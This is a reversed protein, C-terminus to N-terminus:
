KSENIEGGFGYANGSTRKNFYPKVMDIDLELTKGKRRNERIVKDIIRDATEVSLSRLKDVVENSVTLESIAYIWKKKELIDNIISPKEETQVPALEILEVFNKLKKANEKDCVCIPLVSSLDLTIAPHHLRFKRRKDSRLVTKTLEIAADSVEGSFVLIYANNKRENLGRIFVNNKTPEFDYERLEGVEIRDINTSKLAECVASIYTELVYESDSCLCIPRFMDLARIDSGYLGQVVSKRENERNIPLKEIAAENVAIDAFKLRLPLDCTESLMEKNESFLIKEKDKIGIAESYILRAYMPDYVDQKLKNVSVAQKILLVEESFEEDASAGYKDEAIFTMFEYPTDKVASNLMKFIEAKNTESYKLMVLTAPIDGWQVAKKLNGIGGLKDKAVVIGECQLIGLMRLAIVNGIQAGGTLSKVVLTETSEETAKMGYKTATIIADGKIAILLNETESYDQENGILENYQRIRKYRNFDGESSVGKVASSETEYFLESIEKEPICFIDALRYFLYERDYFAGLIADNLFYEYLFTETLINFM